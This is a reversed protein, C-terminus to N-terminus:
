HFRHLSLNRSLQKFGESFGGCGSFLDIHIYDKNVKKTSNIFIPEKKWNYLNEEVEIKTDWINNKM